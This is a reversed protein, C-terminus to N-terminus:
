KNCYPQSSWWRIKDIYTAFQCKILGVLRKRPWINYNDVYNCQKNRYFLLKCIESIIQGFRCFWQRPAILIFLDLKFQSRAHRATESYSGPLQSFLPTIQLPDLFLTSTLQTILNLTILFTKLELRTLEVACEYINYMLLHNPRFM